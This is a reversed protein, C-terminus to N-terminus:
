KKKRYTRPEELVEVDQVAGSITKEISEEFSPKKTEEFVFEVGQNKAIKKLRGIKYATLYKRFRIEPRMYQYAYFIAALIGAGLAMGLFTSIVDTM